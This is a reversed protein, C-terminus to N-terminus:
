FVPPYLKNSNKASFVVNASIGPDLYSLRSKPLFFDVGDFFRTIFHFDLKQRSFTSKKLFVPPYLKNSKKASFVVNASIGPDLYSLRSKPLFFDVGNFFRASFHFDLKHRSLTSMM